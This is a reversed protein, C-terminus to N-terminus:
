LIYPFCYDLKFFGNLQWYWREDDTDLSLISKFLTIDKSIFNTTDDFSGHPQYNKTNLLPHELSLVATNISSIENKMESCDEMKPPITEDRTFKFM